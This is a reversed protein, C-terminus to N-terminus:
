CIDMDADQEACVPTLVLPLPCFSLLLLLGHLIVMFLHLVPVCECTFQLM